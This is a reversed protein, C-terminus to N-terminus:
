PAGAILEQMHPVKSDLIRLPNTHLRRKSDDDLVAEHAAFHDILQQRHAAREQPSGLSNLELRIDALGLDEWIRATLLILEADVDPGAYGLAEADVHHFQRYRGKQPREPRFM